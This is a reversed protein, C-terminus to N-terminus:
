HFNMFTLVIHFNFLFTHFNKYSIQLLMNLSSYSEFYSLFQPIVKVHEGFRGYQRDGQFVALQTNNWATINILTVSGTQSLKAPIDLVKGKISLGPNSIAM